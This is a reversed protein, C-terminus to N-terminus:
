QLQLPGLQIRGSPRLSLDVIFNSEGPRKFTLWEDTVPGHCDSTVCTLRGGFGGSFTEFLTVYRFEQKDKFSLWTHGMAVSGPNSAPRTVRYYGSQDPVRTLVYDGLQTQKNPVVGKPLLGSQQGANKENNFAVLYPAEFVGSSISEQDWMKNYPQLSTVYHMAVPVGLVNAVDNQDINSGQNGYFYRAKVPGDRREPFTIMRCETVIYNDKNDFTPLYWGSIAPFNKRGGYGNCNRAVLSDKLKTNLEKYLNFFGKQDHGVDAQMKKVLDGLENNYFTRIQPTAQNYDSVIGSPYGIKNYVKNPGVKPDNNFKALVKYIDTLMPSMMQQTGALLATNYVINNNCGQRINVFNVSPRNQQLSGCRNNLAQIYTNFTANKTLGKMSVLTTNPAKLITLLEDNGAIATDWDKIYEELSKVKHTRLYNQYRIVDERASKEIKQFALTENNIAADETFDKLVGLNKAVEDVQKTLTTLQALIKDLKANTDPQCLEGAFGAVGAVADGVVPITGGMNSVWSLYTQVASPCGESPQQAHASSIPSINVMKFHHFTNALNNGLDLGAQKRPKTPLEEPKAVDGNMLRKKLTELFENESTPNTAMRKAYYDGMEEFLDASGDPSDYDSFFIELKQRADPWSIGDKLLYDRVLRNTLYIGTTLSNPYAANYSQLKNPFRFAGVMHGQKDQVILTTAQQVDNPLFMMCGSASPKCDIDQNKISHGNQDLLVARVFTQNTENGISIMIKTDAPPASLTAQNTSTSEGCGAVTLTGLAIALAVLTKPHPNNM